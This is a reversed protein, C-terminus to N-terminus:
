SSPTARCCRTQRRGISFRGYSLKEEIGFEDAPRKTVLQVAGGTTNRGYLTGQPGRLVEIRDMDFLPNRSLRSRGYYIEDIYIGVSSEVTDLGASGLGRIAVSSIRGGDQTVLSPTQLSLGELTTVGKKQLSAATEVTMSIPVELVNEARRQATVIIEELTFSSDQAFVSGTQLAFALPTLIFLASGFRHARHM